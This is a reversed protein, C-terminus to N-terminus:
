RVAKGELYAMVVEANQKKLGWGFPTTVEVIDGAKDLYIDGTLGGYFALLHYGDASEGAVEFRVTGGEPREANMSALPDLAPLSFSEGKKLNRLSLFPTLAYIPLSPHPLPFSLEKETTGTKIRVELNSNVLRAKLNLPPATAGVSITLRFIDGGPAILCFSHLNFQNIIGQFPFKLWITNDLASGYFGEERYPYLVTHSYGVQEDRFFIGLWEDGVLEPLGARLLPLSSSGAFSPLIEKRFFVGMVVLWLILVLGPRIFGRIKRYSISKPM